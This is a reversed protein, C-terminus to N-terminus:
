VHARGIQKCGRNNILERLGLHLMANQADELCEFLENGQYKIPGVEMNKTLDSNYNVIFM